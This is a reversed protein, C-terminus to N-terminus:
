TPKASAGRTECRTTGSRRRPSTNPWRHRPQSKYVDVQEMTSMGSLIVKVNAHSGVWRLAWSSISKDPAYAKLPQAIDEPLKALSGGKVPEMIVMPIKLSAALEYGQDGAQIRRDRDRICM